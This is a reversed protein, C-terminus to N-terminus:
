QALPHIRRWLKRWFPYLLFIFVGLLAAYSKNLLFYSLWLLEKLFFYAGLKKFCPVDPKPQAAQREALREAIQAHSFACWVAAAGLWEVSKSGALYTFGGLIAAVVMSEVIWTKM